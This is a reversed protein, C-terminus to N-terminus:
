IGRESAESKMLDPSRGGVAAGVVWRIDGATLGYLSAPM